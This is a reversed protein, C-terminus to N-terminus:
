EEFYVRKVRQSIGTLIEYPITGAWAAVQEVSLNKGFLEVEDGEKVLPVDTVDIMFMDMCVTGVIPVLKGQLFVKGVGNGLQRPYGDAYGLRITAIRSRRQLITKRNYSISEGAAVEKLQAITAYLTAVPKLSLSASTEIGYLGIGLRVMDMTLEPTRIAAASNAIHCLFPREILKQLRITAEIFKTAQLRTFDDQQPDESAALHSFVSQVQFSSSSQLRQGLLDIEAVSFGLRNMGTEIELHVPYEQIGERQLYQDFQDAIHFSYLAPELRYDVLVEFASLEANMVMIPLTIGAKRLEVGEDAYAVGLYDVGHYQLVNAVEAAGSGYAFAKVMAMVKTRSPLKKKFQQWNYLLAPLEIELRTQHAKEELFKIVQELAFVRAGKVLIIEEKFHAHSLESLFSDTSSFTEVKIGVSQVFLPLWHSIKEGIAVVRVVQHRDLLHAIQKYLQSDTEASQLFDSLIVTRQLGGHQQAMFELAITLSSIDASYSDNILLCHNIGKKLSLRMDIPTLEKMRTAILEQAYGLYLLVEWCTIANQISAADTFPIKISAESGDAPSTAVIETGEAHVITKLVTLSPPLQARVFLKRKEKEKEENSIFGESHAEGLSTFVGITPRIIAELKEMEGPQSIGAEFIALTHYSRIQWVSLPVGVQSNFSKPSRVIAYEQHLLQFLWEKVITKGNSGTIGIVPINFQLRHWAALQQLAEVTDKVQIFTAEPYDTAEVSNSVVFSRVGKRYLEGIFDHGNRRPSVIAFFLSTAPSFAKRSDILLHEVAHDQKVETSAQLLRVIDSVLYQLL